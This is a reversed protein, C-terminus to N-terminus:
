QHKRFSKFNHNLENQKPINKLNFSQLHCRFYIFNESTECCKSINNLMLNNQNLCIKFSFFVFVFFFRFSLLLTLSTPSTKTHRKAQFKEIRDNMPTIMITYMQNNHCINYSTLSTSSISALFSIVVYVIHYLVTVSYFHCM